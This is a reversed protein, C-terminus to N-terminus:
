RKAGVGSERSGMGLRRVEDGTLARTQGSLLEGIRISGIAIRVLTLVEADLAEVM